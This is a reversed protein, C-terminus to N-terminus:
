TTAPGEPESAGGGAARARGGGLAPVRAGVGGPAEWFLWTGVKRAFDHTNRLHTAVRARLEVVSEQADDTVPARRNALRALITTAFREAATLEEPQVDVRGQLTSWRDRFRQALKGLDTALDEYGVGPLVDDLLTAEVRGREILSAMVAVLGRRLKAADTAIDALLDSESASWLLDAHFAALAAHELDDVFRAPVTPLEAAVRAAQARLHPVAALAQVAARTLNFTGRNLSAAPLSQLTPQLADFAAAARSFDIPAAPASTDDAEAPTTM